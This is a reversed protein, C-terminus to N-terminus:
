WNMNTVRERQPKDGQVCWYNEPQGTCNFLYLLMRSQQDPLVETLRQFERGLEITDAGVTAVNLYHRPILWSIPMRLPRCGLRAFQRALVDKGMRICTIIIIIGQINNVARNSYKVTCGSQKILTNRIFPPLYRSRLSSLWHDADRETVVKQEQKGLIGNVGPRSVYM